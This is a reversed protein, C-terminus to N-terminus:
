DEEEDSVEVEICHWEGREKKYAIWAEVEKILVKYHRYTRNCRVMAYLNMGVALWMLVISIWRIVEYM